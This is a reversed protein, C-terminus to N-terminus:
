RAVTLYGIGAVLSAAVGAAGGKLAAKLDSTPILVIDDNQLVLDPTHHRLVSSVKFPIKTRGDSSVRLIYAKNLAAEYNVGGALAMAEILTLPSTTKLPIAGQQHFAGIVYVVGVKSVVIDDGPAIVINFRGSVSADAPIQVKFPDISGRRYITVTPSSAPTFGGAASLVDLLRKEGYIQIPGPSKVEGTVTAFHNPSELVHLNVQPDKVLESAILRSAIDQEAAIVSEGGLHIKGVLPLSIEGGDTVRGKYDFSSVGFIQVEVLDGPLLTMTELHAPSAPVLHPTDPKTVDPTPGIFQAGAVSCTLLLALFFIHTPRVFGLSRSPAFSHLSFPKM